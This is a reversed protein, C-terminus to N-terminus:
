KRDAQSYRMKGCIEYFVRNEFFL